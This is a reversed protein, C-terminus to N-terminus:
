KLLAFLISFYNIIHPIEPSNAPVPTGVIVDFDVNPKRCLQEDLNGNIKRKM